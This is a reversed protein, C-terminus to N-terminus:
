ETVVASRDRTALYGYLAVCAMLLWFTSEVWHPHEYPYRAYGTAEAIWSSSENLVITSAVVLFGWRKRLAIAVGGIVLAGGGAAVTACALYWHRLWDSLDFPGGLKMSAFLRKTPRDSLQFAGMIGLVVLLGGFLVTAGGIAAMMLM